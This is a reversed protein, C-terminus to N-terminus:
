RAAESRAVDYLEHLSRLALRGLDTIRYRALKGDKRATVLGATRLSRLHHSVLNDARDTIWALDCVCLDDTDALATLLTLRLPDAAARGAAAMQEAVPAPLRQTRLATATGLDISLLDCAFESM